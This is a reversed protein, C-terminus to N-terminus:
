RGKMLMRATVRGERRPHGSYSPAPRQAANKPPNAEADPSSPADEDWVVMLNTPDSLSTM